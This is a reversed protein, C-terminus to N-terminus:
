MNLSKHVKVAAQSKIANSEFQSVDFTSVMRPLSTRAAATRMEIAIDCRQFLRRRWRAPM